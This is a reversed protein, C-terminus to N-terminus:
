IPIRDFWDRVIDLDDAMNENEHILDIIFTKLANSSLKWDEVSIDYYQLKKELREFKDKELSLFHEKMEEPLSEIIKNYRDSM